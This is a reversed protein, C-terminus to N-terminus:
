LREMRDKAIIGAFAEVWRQLEHIDCSFDALLRAVPEPVHPLMDAMIRERRQAQQELVDKTEQACKAFDIEPCHSKLQELIESLNESREMYNM